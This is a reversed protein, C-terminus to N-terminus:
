WEFNFMQKGDAITEQLSYLLLCNPGLDSQEM